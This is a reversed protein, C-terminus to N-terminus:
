STSYLCAVLTRAEINLYNSHHLLEALQHAAVWRHDPLDPDPGVADVLLYRTLAHDFRGGEEPLLTDFRVRDASASLVEHLFAPPAGPHNTPTAQVTPALEVVDHFGPEIRAQVLVHLVGGIDRVLFAAVGTGVPRLLPQQWGGVERGPAHVDVGVVDFFRGDDHTIRGDTRSWGRVEALPIRRTTVDTTARLGAVWSLLEPLQHAGGSAPDFSARLARLYPDTGRGVTPGPGAIPLCSLVTRTDMNVLGDIGLLRHLQGVTVWRFGNYVELSPDVEVVMNRNRKRYFWTGQESQLVDALVRDPVPDRFFEIYPVARGGHVATLNSRTAQVTPSLQMGGVNGPEFKAQVLAHLVGDFEAVLIGLIGVEPQVIIPQQWCPRAAGLVEVDLGEVTFFKGSEHGINGTDPDTHWGNLDDLSAPRVEFPTRRSEAAFWEHFAMLEGAASRQTLASRALRRHAPEVDPLPFSATM